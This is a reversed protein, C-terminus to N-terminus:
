VGAAPSCAHVQAGTSVAGRVQAAIHMTHQQVCDEAPVGQLLQQVLDGVGLGPLAGEGSSPQALWSSSSSSFPRTISRAAAPLPQLLLAMAEAATQQHFGPLQRADHQQQQEARALHRQAEQLAALQQKQQCHVQVQEVAATLAEVLLPATLCALVVEAPAPQSVSVQQDLAALVQLLVNADQLQQHQQQLVQQQGQSPVRQQQQQQAGQHLQSWLQGLASYAQQQSDLQPLQQCQLDDCCANRHSSSSGTNTCRQSAARRSLSLQQQQQQQQRRMYAAHTPLLHQLLQTQELLRLSPAAAGYGLMALLEATLRHSNLSSILHSHQQLATLTALDVQLGACCCLRVGWSDTSAQAPSHAAAATDTSVEAAAGRPFVRITKFVRITQQTSCTSIYAGAWKFARVQELLVACLVCCAPPTGASVCM